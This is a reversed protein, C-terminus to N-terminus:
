PQGFGQARSTSLVLDRGKAEDDITELGVRAVAWGMKPFIRVFYNRGGEAQIALNEQNEGTISTLMHQGPALPIVLYSKHGVAGILQGDLLVQFVAARSGQIVYLMAQDAPPQFRKAAQDLDPSALPVTAVCGALSALLIICLILHMM